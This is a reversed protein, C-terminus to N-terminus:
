VAMKTDPGEHELIWRIKDVMARDRERSIAQMDKHNKVQYRGRGATKELPRIAM